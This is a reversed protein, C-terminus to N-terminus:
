EEDIPTICGGDILVSKLDEPLEDEALSRLVDILAEPVVAEFGITQDGPVEQVVKYLEEMAEIRAQKHYSELEKPPNQAKASEVLAKVVEARQAYTTQGLVFTDEAEAGVCWHVYEEVTMASSGLGCGYVSAALLGAAALRKLSVM